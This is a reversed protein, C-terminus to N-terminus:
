AADYVKAIQNFTLDPVTRCATTLWQHYPPLTSEEFENLDRLHRWCVFIGKPAKLDERVVKETQNTKENTKHALNDECLFVM